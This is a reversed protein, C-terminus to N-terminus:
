VVMFYENLDHQFGRLFDATEMRKKGAMQLTTIEIQGDSACVRIFSTNDSEITGPQGTRGKEMIRADLIKVPIEEDDSKKMVSFAAPYPSMGRVLNQIKEGPQDWRIRCDEKSIKPAKSLQEAKTDLTKQDIPKINGNFLQNITRVTLGSGAHMLKDHLTGANDSPTIRVAKQLLINGTDIQEDILFTTVGTETEGNILSWNIPAAGRYDPLLSAHLNITGMPPIKWVSEPLMRFAVVVFIHADLTKLKETFRPDKLSEPQLVPCSLQNELAYQKVASPNPKQGRGSPKDPATVIGNVLIGSDLIAELPGVAFAPTGMFVIRIGSGKM